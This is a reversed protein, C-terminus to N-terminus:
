QGTPQEHAREVLLVTEDADYDRWLGTINFLEGTAKVALRDVASVTVSRGRLCLKKSGTAQRIGQTITEGASLADQRAAYDAGPGPWSEKEEGNAGQPALVRPLITVRLRYKGQANQM